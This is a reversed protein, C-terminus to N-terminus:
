NANLHWSLDRQKQMGTMDEGHKAKKETERVTESIAQLIKTLEKVWIM